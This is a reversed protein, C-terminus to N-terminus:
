TSVNTRIQPDYSWLSAANACDTPLGVVIAALQFKSRGGQESRDMAERSERSSGRGHPGSFSIRVEDFALVVLESM